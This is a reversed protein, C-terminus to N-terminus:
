LPKIIIVSIAVLLSYHMSMTILIYKKDVLTMANIILKRDCWKVEVEGQM